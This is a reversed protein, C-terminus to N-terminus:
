APQLYGVVLSTAEDILTAASRDSLMDPRHLVANHALAEIATGCVFAALGLDAVQIEDRRAELYGM